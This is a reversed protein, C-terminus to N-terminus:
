GQPTDLSILTLLSMVRDVERAAARTLQGLVKGFIRLSRNERAGQTNQLPNEGPRGPAHEAGHPDIEGLRYAANKDPRGPAFNAYEQM